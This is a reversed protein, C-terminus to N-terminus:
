RGKGGKGPLKNISKPPVSEGTFRYSVIQGDLKLNITKTKDSTKSDYNTLKLNKVKTIREMSSIYYVFTALENFTGELSINMPMEELIDKRDPKQPVLQLIQVGSAKTIIQIARIIESSTLEKPLKLSAEQYQANLTSVKSQVEEQIRLAEDVEKKKAKQLSVQQTLTAIKAEYTSGDDYFLGYYIALLLVGFMMTRSLSFMGVVELLKELIKM